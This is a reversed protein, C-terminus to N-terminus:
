KENQMEMLTIREITALTSNLNFLTVERNIKASTLQLEADNLDTVSIQGSSFIEQSYAFSEQALRVAENNADLTKKYERYETLTKDLMLLYTEKGQQFYLEADHKDIKAQKLKERSIGGYWIPVSVKIGAVGYDDMSDSGMNADNSDGKHNWTVFGSISPYLYAKKSKILEEKEEINSALAKIAPQNHYLQLALTERQFEPYIENLAGTLAVDQNSEIGILTKLTEMASVYDARANNVTPKRGAIDSSIKINDYKSVRGNEARDELIQKNSLANAYSEEAIELTRKALHASYFGIKANYIIEQKTGENNYQSSEVVKQAASIAHSIRGFTFLNQSITIGTDVHYDRTMSTATIDPYEFNNSWGISGSIAPFLEGREVKQNSLERKVANEQLQLDESADLAMGIVDQLSVNVTGEMPQAMVHNISFMLLILFIVVSIFNKSKM